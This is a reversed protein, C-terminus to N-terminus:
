RVFGDPLSLLKESELHQKIEDPLFWAPKYQRNVYLALQDAFHPSDEHESIGFPLCSISRTAGAFDVIMSYSSGGTCFRRGDEMQGYTPRLATLKLDALPGRLGNGAVGREIDGRRIRSFEGWPVDLKGFRQEVAAAQEIAAEAVAPQDGSELTKRFAASNVLYMFLVAGKSELDTRRDWMTLINTIPTLREASTESAKAQEGLMEIIRPVLDNAGILYTDTAYTHMEEWTISEDAELLQKLRLSRSNAQQSMMYPPYDEPQPASSPCVNQPGSNTNMLYGSPPNKVQPLEDLGHFGQWQAWDEAAPRIENTAIRTDRKAVRGNSIYFIDGAADAYLLNFMVLGLPSIAERFEDVSRARAMNYIQGARRPEDSLPVALAYAVGDNVAVVPGLSCRRVPLPMTRRADGSGIGYSEAYIELDEWGNPGKVRKANDPDVELAFVDGLDPGNVTMCWATTATRGMSVYPSGYFCAGMCNIEPSVLHMEYWRFFGSHPLHPDMSLMTGGTESRGPRIAFQNSGVTSARLGSVQELGGLRIGARSLDRQCHTVSFLTDVYESFALVHEPEVPEIWDPIDAQHEAIYANVGAAFADLHLRYQDTLMGYHKEARQPLQLMRVLHDLQLSAAGEREAARGRARLFNMVLNELQDEAQAYGVGFFLSAEDRAIIHPVGYSDRLIKVSGAPPPEYADFSVAAANSVFGLLVVCVFTSAKKM